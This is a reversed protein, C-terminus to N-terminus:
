YHRSNRPKSRRLKTLHSPVRFQFRIESWLSPPLPYERSFYLGWNNLSRIVKYSCGPGSRPLFVKLNRYLASMVHLHNIQKYIKVILYVKKCNFSLLHSTRLTTFLQYLYIKQDTFCAYQNGPSSFM